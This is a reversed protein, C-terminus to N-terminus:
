AKFLRRTLAYFLPDDAQDTFRTQFVIVLADVLALPMTGIKRRAAAVPMGRLAIADNYNPFM